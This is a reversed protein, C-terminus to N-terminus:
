LYANGCLVLFKARVRGKATRASPAAGLEIGLVPSREFLRAGAGEAARALGLCYTLPHLHGARADYLGGIYAPSNLYGLAEDRSLLTLHDYGYDRSWSEMTERMAAVHRPKVAANLFGWTLDCEIAHRQVREAIIDKGEEVFAFLKRADDKGLARAIPEMGASFASCVQGGNRGSAGWGIRNAELLVVDYGREALNLAVSVGSYGGGVVCVDAQLDGELAPREVLGRATAAYYSRTHESPTM